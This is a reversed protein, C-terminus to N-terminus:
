ASPNGGGLDKVLQGFNVRQLGAAMTRPEGKWNSDGQAVSTVIPSVAHERWNLYRCVETYSLSGREDSQM